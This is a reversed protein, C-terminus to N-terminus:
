SKLTKEYLEMMQHTLKTHDFRQVYNLGDAIMKQQLNKDHLVLQIKEALETTSNPNVYISSEGGAEELCSGTAAIVPIGSHLAEIIPIGFGEYLSPYVFLSALQYVIPLEVYSVDSLYSVQNQMGNEVIFQDVQQAYNTKRGIVILKTKLGSLKLAKVTLLLNKREEVTGVSLIFENPLNFKQTVQKKQIEDAKVMFQEHCGQYIVKIKEPAIGYFRMVDRKTCESVAVIQDADHCAKRFKFDYILRDIQKYFRPYHRFILDHITVVSKVKTKKITFPLENTLGHYLDPKLSKIDEHINWSRWIAKQMKACAPPPVFKINSCDAILKKMGHEILNPSLLLFEDQQYQQALNNVVFRSYNGLGTVNNTIRKADYAIKM